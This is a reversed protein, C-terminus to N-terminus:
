MSLYLLRMGFIQLPMARRCSFDIAASTYTLYNEGSLQSSAGTTTNLLLQKVKLQSSLTLDGNLAITLNGMKHNQGDITVTNSIVVDEAEVDNIIIVPQDSIADVATQLSEYNEGGRTAVTPAYAFGASYDKNDLYDVDIVEASGFEAADEGWAVFKYDTNAIAKLTFGCNLTTVEITGGLGDEHKILLDYPITFTPKRSGDASTYAIPNDTSENNWKSFVGCSGANASLSYAMSAPTYTSPTVAVLGGEFDVDEIKVFVANYTEDTNNLGHTITRPNNTNTAGNADVWYLFRYGAVPTATLIYDATTGAKLVASVTGGTAAQTYDIQMGTMAFVQGSLGWLLAILICSIKKMNTM